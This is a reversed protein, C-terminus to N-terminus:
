SRVGLQRISSECAILPRGARRAVGVHPSILSDGRRDGKEPIWHM